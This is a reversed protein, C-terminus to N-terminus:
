ERNTRPENTAEMPEVLEKADELQKLQFALNTCEVKVYEITRYVEGRKERPGMLSFIVANALPSLDECHSCDFGFWHHRTESEDPLSGSWTIGGHVHLIMGLPITKNEMEGSIAYCFGEIWGIDKGMKVNELYDEKLNVSDSYCWGFLAHNAPVGVYGCLSGTVHMNRIICCPLGTREDIWELRDPEDQWPGVGWKSKPIVERTM